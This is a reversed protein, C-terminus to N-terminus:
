TSYKKIRIQKLLKNKLNREIKTLCTVIIFWVLDEMLGDTIKKNQLIFDLIRFFIMM